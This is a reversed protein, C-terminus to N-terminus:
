VKCIRDCWWCWSFTCMKIPFVTCFLNFSWFIICIEVGLTPLFGNKSATLLSMQM